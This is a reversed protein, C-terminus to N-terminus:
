VAQRTAAGRLVGSGIVPILFTGMFLANPVVNFAAGSLVSITSDITFWIAMAATLGRWAPAGAARAADILAFITVAWGILVAGLVGGTFRLMPDFDPAGDLPWYVFDYYLLAAADAGPAAGAVFVLGLAVTSWCWITMWSKWFGTM